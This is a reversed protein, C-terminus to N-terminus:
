GRAAGRGARGPSWGRRPRGHRRACVFAILVRTPEAVAAACLGVAVWIAEPRALGVVLAFFLAVVGMRVVFSSYVVVLGRRGGTRAALGTTLRVSEIILYGFLAGALAALVDPTVASAAPLHPSPALAAFGVLDYTSGM